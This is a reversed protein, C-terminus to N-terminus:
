NKATHTHTHTQSCFNTQSYVKTKNQSTFSINNVISESKEIKTKFVYHDRLLPDESKFDQTFLHKKIHALEHKDVFSGVDPERAM